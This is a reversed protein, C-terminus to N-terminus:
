VYNIFDIMKDEANFTDLTRDDVFVDDSLMNDAISFGTPYCYDTRFVHTLIQYQDGFHSSSPRWLFNMGRKEEKSRENKDAKDLRSFFMAEFGMQAYLRTNMDTHGFTDIDWGIKPRVGFEKYIWEHGVMMNNIM